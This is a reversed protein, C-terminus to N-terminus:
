IETSLTAKSTFISSVIRKSHLNLQSLDATTLHVGRTIDGLAYINNEFLGNHGQVQCSTYDVNVGAITNRTVIRQSLLNQILQSSCKEINNYFGTADVLYEIESIYEGKTTIIQFHHKNYLISELQYLELQKRRILNYILTASPIPFAGLYQLWKSYYKSMFDLKTNENLIPWIVSIKEAISSLAAQWLIEKCNALFLEQRLRLLPNYQRFLVDKTIPTPLINNIESFILDVMQEVNIQSIDKSSISNFIKTPVTLKKGRVTPLAGERSFMYIKNNYGINTLFTVIDIATLRSGIIGIKKYDKIEGFSKSLFISAACYNINNLFNPSKHEIIHGITIIAYKTTCLSQPHKVTHIILKTDQIKINTVEDAILNTNINILKAIKIIEDLVYELYEGYHHRYASIKHFHEKNLTIQHNISM